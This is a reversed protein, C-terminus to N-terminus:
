RERDYYKMTTSRYEEDIKNFEPIAVEVIWKLIDNVEVNNERREEENCNLHLTMLASLEMFLEISKSAQKNRVVGFEKARRRLTELYDSANEGKERDRAPKDMGLSKKLLRIEKSYDNLNKKIAEVDVEEGWYDIEKSLWLSWRWCLLEMVIIRDIDQFDTINSFKNDSIYRSAIDNFYIEEQDTLVTFSAGSPAIVDINGQHNNEINDPYDM